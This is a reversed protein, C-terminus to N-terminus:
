NDEAMQLEEKIHKKLRGQRNVRMREALFGNMTVQGPEAAQFVDQGVVAKFPVQSATVSSALVLGSFVALIYMANKM